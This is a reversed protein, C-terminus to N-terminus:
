YNLGFSSMFLVFWWTPGVYFWHCIHRQLRMHVNDHEIITSTVEVISIAVVWVCVCNNTWLVFKCSIMFGFMIFYFAILFVIFVIAGSIHDFRFSQMFITIHAASHILYRFFHCIAFWNCKFRGCICSSQMFHMWCWLSDVFRWTRVSVHTFM